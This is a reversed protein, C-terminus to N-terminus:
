ATGRLSLLMRGLFPYRTQGHLSTTDPRTAIHCDSVGDVRRYRLMWRDVHRFFFFEGLIRKLFAPVFDVLEVTHRLVKCLSRPLPRKDSSSDVNLVGLFRGDKEASRATSQVCLKRPAEFRVRREIDSREFGSVFIFSFIVVLALSLGILVFYINRTTWSLPTIVVVLYHHGRLELGQSCNGFIYVSYFHCFGDFRHPVILLLKRQQLVGIHDRHAFIHDVVGGDIFFVTLKSQELCLM